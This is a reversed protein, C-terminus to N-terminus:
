NLKSSAPPSPLYEYYRQGVLGSLMGLGAFMQRLARVYSAKGLCLSPVAKVGGLAIHGLAKLLRLLRTATRDDIDSEAFVWSNGGRYARQLLWGCNARGSSISETVVADPSAVIRLGAQSARLFFHVDEGGTLGFADDFERLRDM